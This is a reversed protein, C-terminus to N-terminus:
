EDFVLLRGVGEAVVLLKDKLDDVFNDLRRTVANCPSQSYFAKVEVGVEM